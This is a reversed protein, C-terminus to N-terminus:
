ESPLRESRELQKQTREDEQDRRQEKAAERLDVNPGVLKHLLSELSRREKQLMRIHNQILQRERDTQATKLLEQQQAVQENLLDIGQAMEIAIPQDSSTELGESEALAELADDDGEDQAFGSFSVLTVSLLAVGFWFGIRKM